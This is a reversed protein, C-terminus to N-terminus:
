NRTKPYLLATIFVWTCPKTPICTMIEKSYIGLFLIAPDYPLHTKLM